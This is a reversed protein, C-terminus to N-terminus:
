HGGARIKRAAELAAAACPHKKDAAAADLAPLAQAAAPGIAGLTGCALSKLEGSAKPDSIIKILKPVAPAAAPGFCGLTEVLSADKEASGAGLGKVIGDLAPLAKEKLNWLMAAPLLSVGDDPDAVFESFLGMKKETPYNMMAVAYAAERRSQLDPDRRYIDMLCAVAEESPRQRALARCADKRDAGKAVSMARLKAAMDDPVKEATVRLAKQVRGRVKEDGDLADMLYGRVAKDSLRASLLAQAAYDAAEDDEGRLARLLPEVSGDPVQYHEEKLRERLTKLAEGSVKPNGSALMSALTEYREEIPREEAQRAARYEPMNRRVVSESLTYYVVGLGAVVVLFSQADSACGFLRGLLSRWLILSNVGTLLAGVAYLVGAPWIGIVSSIDTSIYAGFSGPHLFPLLCKWFLGTFILVLGLFGTMRHLSAARLTLGGLNRLKSLPLATFLMLAPLAVAACFYAGGYNGRALTKVMAYSVLAFLLGGGIFFNWAAYTSMWNDFYFQDNWYAPNRGLRTGAAYSPTEGRREERAREPEEPHENQM